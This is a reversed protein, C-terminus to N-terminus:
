RENRWHENREESAATVKTLQYVVESFYKPSLEKMALGKREKSNGSYIVINKDDRRFFELDYVTVEEDESAMYGDAVYAGSFHLVAKIGAEVDERYFYYYYGADEAQGKYWGLSQLKSSLSIGSLVMGGFRDLAQENKEEETMAFLPRALQEVSQTIEYDSLQEEWKAKSEASIEIPHILGIMGHEPLQYEEEDETNFSGDEMYRFTALLTGDGGYVGWILSIAFQHMIPNAVFLARWKDTQWKRETSLAAELRLKQNAVTQKMQKKMQKFEAYSEAAIVEDDRKGPAPMNKLKKDNEDYIEIELAPTIYVKFKREGYDFIREHQENFGLDPVIRDALEETSLGLQEAAFELAKSASARVQKYKYKRAIGDVLLLATPSSNLALAKVAEAAIAGRSNKAWEDIQHKMIDVIQAGGHIGAAYLVWKKKAEAGLLIWKDFLETVYQALESQNLGETLKLVDKNVGPVPMASYALLIAQMYAEDAVAESDSAGSADRMHVEIFPTEYAWALSRKKGGKHLEKVYSDADISEETSVHGKKSLADRIVGAVKSSKEKGLAANLEASYDTKSYGLVSAALEREAAKGSALKEVVDPMWEEHKSLLQLMEEKVLKSSDGFFGLIQKKYLDGKKGLIDIAWTRSVATGATFADLCEEEHTDLYGSFLDKVTTIFSKKTDTSYICDEMGAATQWQRDLSLGADSLEGFLQLLQEANFDNWGNKTFLRLMSGYEKRISIFVLCRKYFDDHGMTQGYNTIWPNNYSYTYKQVALQKEMSYLETPSSGERLYHIANTKEPEGVSRVLSEIVEERMHEQKNKNEKFHKNYLSPKEKKILEALIMSIEVSATDLAKEYAATEQDVFRLLAQAFKPTSLKKEMEGCWVILKVPELLLEEKCAWVFETIDSDPANYYLATRWIHEMSNTFNKGYTCMRLFNKFVQSSRFNAACSGILINPVRAYFNGYMSYKDILAVIGAPMKGKNTTDRVFSAALKKDEDTIGRFVSGSNYALLGEYRKFMEEQKKTYHSGTQTSGSAKEQAAFVKSLGGLIGWNKSPKKPAAQTKTEAQNKNKKNLYYFYTSYIALIGATNKCMDLARELVAFSEGATEWMYEMQTYILGTSSYLEALIIVMKERPMKSTFEPDKCAEYFDALSLLKAVNDFLAFLIDVLKFFEDYSKNNIQKKFIKEFADKIRYDLGEANIKQTVGFDPMGTEGSLYARAQVLQNQSVGAKELQEMLKEMQMEKANKM